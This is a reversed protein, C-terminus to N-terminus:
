CGPICKVGGAVEATVFFFASGGSHRERLDSKGVAQEEVFNVKHCRLLIQKPHLPPQALDVLVSRSVLPIRVWAQCM